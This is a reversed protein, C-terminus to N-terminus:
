SSVNLTHKSTNFYQPVVTGFLNSWTNFLLLILQVLMKYCSSATRDYKNCDPLSILERKGFFIQSVFFSPYVWYVHSEM